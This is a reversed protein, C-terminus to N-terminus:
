DPCGCSAGGPYGAGCRKSNKATAASKEYPSTKEKADQVGFWVRASFVDVIEMRQDYEEDGRNGREPNHVSNPRSNSQKLQLGPCALGREQPGSHGERKRERDNRETRVLCEHNRFSEYTVSFRQLLEEGDGQENESKGNADPPNEVERSGTHLQLELGHAGRVRRQFWALRLQRALIRMKVPGPPNPKLPRVIPM